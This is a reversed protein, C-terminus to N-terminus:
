RCLEGCISETTRNGASERYLARLADDNFHLWASVPKTVLSVFDPWHRGQDLHSVRIQQFKNLQVGHNAIIQKMGESGVLVFAFPAKNSISRINQFLSDGLPGRAVIDSPLDDIRRSYRCPSLEAANKHWDSFILL